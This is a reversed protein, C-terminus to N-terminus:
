AGFYGAATKRHWEITLSRLLRNNPVSTKGKRRIMGTGPSFGRNIYRYPKEFKKGTKSDSGTVNWLWDGPRVQSMGSGIGRGSWHRGWPWGAAIGTINNGPRDKLRMVLPTGSDIRRWIHSDRLVIRFAERCFGSSGCNSRFEVQSKRLVPTDKDGAPVAAPNRNWERIMTYRGSPYLWRLVPIVM